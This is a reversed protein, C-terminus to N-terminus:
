TLDSAATVPPSNGTATTAFRHVEQYQRSQAQAEKVPYFYPHEM